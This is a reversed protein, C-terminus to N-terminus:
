LQKVLNVSRETYEPLIKKWGRRGIIQVYKCELSKFWPEVIKNAVEVLRLDGAAIWLLGYRYEKTNEIKTLLVCEIPDGICWVQAERSAVMERMHSLPTDMGEVRSLIPSLEDWRALAEAAQLTYVQELQM